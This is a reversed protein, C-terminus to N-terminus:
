ARGGIGAGGGRNLRGKNTIVCRDTPDGELRWYHFAGPRVFNEVEVLHTNRM